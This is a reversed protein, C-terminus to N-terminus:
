IMGAILLVGDGHGVVDESERGDFRRLQSIM